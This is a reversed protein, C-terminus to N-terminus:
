YSKSRSVIRLGLGQKHINVIKPTKSTINREIMEMIYTKDEAVAGIINGKLDLPTVVLFVSKKAAETFAGPRDARLRGSAAARNPVQAACM